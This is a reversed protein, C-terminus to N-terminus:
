RAYWPSQTIDRVFLQNPHETFGIRRYFDMASTNSRLQIRKCEPYNYNLYTDVDHLLQTGIGELRRNSDVSINYITCTEHPYRQFIVSAMDDFQIRITNATRTYLRRFAM